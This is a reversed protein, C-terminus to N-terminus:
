KPLDKAQCVEHYESILYQDPDPKDGPYVTTPSGDVFITTAVHDRAIFAEILNFAETGATAVLNGSKAHNVFVGIHTHGGLTEIKLSTIPKKFAFYETSM